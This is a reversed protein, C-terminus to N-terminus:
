RIDKVIQAHITTADIVEFVVKDVKNVGATFSPAVGGPWKWNAAFTPSYPGGSAPQKFLWSGKQPKTVNTPNEIVANHGLTTQFDIGTNFDLTINAASAVTVRAGAAWAADTTLIKGSTNNRYEAATALSPGKKITTSNVFAALDDTTVTGSTVVDGSGAGAPGRIDIADGILSVLGTAGIYSGTAPASGSGGTWGTVQLVRRAGDTILAWQPSWGNTGNAGASGTAGRIDVGDVVDVVLDTAGVYLGTTPKSGTGGIWDVVQAVRRAGDTVVALKPAWGNAGATGTGPAGRIDVASALTATLGSASVYLGTAPKTGSGGTWDTVQLVRRAGDVVLALIPDWGNDGAPGAPLAGGLTNLNTITM